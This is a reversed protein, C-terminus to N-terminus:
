VDAHFPRFMRRYEGPSLGTCRKFLRRFFAVNEYGVGGAIEDVPKRGTELGRKAAEIRLNQAYAILTVGTAQRFRRKLSREAIGCAAVVGAVPDADCYNEALWNEARRVVSDAHPLRRVRNAYPLQGESHWKMLYVKATRLAEGPSVHRSIIHLALDHWSSAGGATVLRGTEDSFCINPAPDFRVAPFNRRFLDEYAWHSAVELGDLLGAAALLVSGTCASYITTDGARCERLWAKLEDYRDGMADDPALWFDTIILIDPRVDDGIALDPKVPIGHGCTFRERTLSLLRPRILSPGRDLGALERWLTGTTALVDLMGYLSSGASEPLALLQIDLPPPAVM